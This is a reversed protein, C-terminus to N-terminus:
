NMYNKGRDDITLTFSCTEAVNKNLSNGDQDTIDFILKNIPQSVALINLFTAKPPNFIEISGSGVTFAFAFVTDSNDSLRDYGGWVLNNKIKLHITRLGNLIEAIQFGNNDGSFGKNVRYNALSWYVIGNITIQDNSDGNISMDFGMLYALKTDNVKFLVDYGPTLTIDFKSTASDGSIVLKRESYPKFNNETSDWDNLQKALFSDINGVGYQGNPFTTTYLYNAGNQQETTSSGHTITGNTKYFYFKNNPYYESINYISNYMSLNTLALKDNENFEIPPNFELSFTGKNLSKSNDVHINYM